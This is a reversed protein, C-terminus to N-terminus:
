LKRMRLAVEYIRDYIKVDVKLKESLKKILLFNEYTLTTSVKIKQGFREVVKDTIEFPLFDVISSEDSVWANILHSNETLIGLETLIQHVYEDLSEVAVQSAFKIKPKQKM